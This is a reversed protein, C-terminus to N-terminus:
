AVTSVWFLLKRKDPHEPHPAEGAVIGGNAEIVRCSALNDADCTILLRSLGLGHAIPLLLQLAQRAYGRNRKWPVVAYGVHGSVHPPLEDSGLAFRLNISGCFSGDWIWFVRGPLRPVESGDSLIVTGGHQRVLDRLFAGADNRIAALQESSVDRTTNPSWGAHLAAVYGPLQELSPEVLEVLPNGSESMRQEAEAAVAEIAARKRDSYAFLTAAGTRVAEWKAAAYHRTAEPDARLLERVALNQQWRAGSYAIISINFCSDTERRRMAWRGPVGAEGLSEYGLDELMPVLEGIRNLDSLGVMLDLV